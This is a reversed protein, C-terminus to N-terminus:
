PPCRGLLHGPQGAPETTPGFPQSRHQERDAKGMGAGAHRVGQPCRDAPVSQQSQDDRQGIRRNRHGRPRRPRVRGAFPGYRRFQARRRRSVDGSRDGAPGPPPCAQQRTSWVAWCRSRRGRGHGMRRRPRSTAGWLGNLNRVTAGRACGPRLRRSTRRGAGRNGAGRALVAQTVLPPPPAPRTTARASPDGTRRVCGRWARSWGRAEPRRGCCATRRGAARCSM